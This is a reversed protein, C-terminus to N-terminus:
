SIYHVWVVPQKHVKGALWDVVCLWSVLFHDSVQIQLKARLLWSSSYGSFVFEENYKPDYCRKMVRTKCKASRDPMLRVKVFANPPQDCQNGTSSVIVSKGVSPLDHLSKVVVHFDSSGPEHKLTLQVSGYPSSEELDEETVYGKEAQQRRLEEELADEDYALGLPQLASTSYSKKPKSPPTTAVATADAKKETPKSMPSSEISRSMMEAEEQMSLLLENALCLENRPSSVDVNFSDRTQRELQRHKKETGSELFVNDHSASSAKVLPSTKDHNELLNDASHSRMGPGAMPPVATARQMPMYVSSSSSTNSNIATETSDNAGYNRGVAETTIMSSYSKVHGKAIPDYYTSVDEGSGKDTPNVTHKVLAPKMVTYNITHAPRPMPKFPTRKKRKSPSNSCKPKPPLPPKRTSPIFYPAPTRKAKKVLLSTRRMIYIYAGAVGLLIFLVIVLTGVVGFAITRDRDYQSQMSDAVTDNPNAAATVAQMADSSAAMAMTVTKNM